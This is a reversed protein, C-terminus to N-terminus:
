TTGGSAARTATVVSVFIKLLGCPKNNIFVLGADAHQLTHQFDTEVTSGSDHILKAFVAHYTFFFASFGSFYKHAHFLEFLQQLFDSM